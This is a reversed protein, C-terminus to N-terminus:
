VGFFILLHPSVSAEDLQITEHMRRVRVDFKAQPNNTPVILRIRRLTTALSPLARANLHPAIVIRILALRMEHKEEQFFAKTAAEPVDGVSYSVGELSTLGGLLFPRSKLARSLIRVFNLDSNRNGTDYCPFYASPKKEPLSSYNESCEQAM